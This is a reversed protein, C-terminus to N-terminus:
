NKYATFPKTKLYHLLYPFCWHCFRYHSRHHNRRYLNFTIGAGRLLQQWNESLIKAVQSFFSSSTEETTTAEAPQEKIM